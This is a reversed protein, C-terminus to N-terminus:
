QYDSYEIITVEAGAPGRVWDDPRVELFAPASPAATATPPPPPETATPPPPETATPPALTPALTPAATPTPANTSTPQATPTPTHTPLPEGASNCAGLLLAAVAVLVCHKLKVM